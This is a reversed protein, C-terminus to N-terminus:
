EEEGTQMNLLPTVTDCRGGGVVMRPRLYFYVPMKLALTVQLELKAGTSAPWGPLLILGYCSEVLIQLDARLYAEYTHVGDVEHPSVITLGRARLRVAADDFAARNFDPLGSMPGSLYYTLESLPAM